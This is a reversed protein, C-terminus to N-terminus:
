GEDIELLLLDSMLFFSCHVNMGNGTCIAHLGKQCNAMM